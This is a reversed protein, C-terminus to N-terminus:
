EEPKTRVERYIVFAWLIFGILIVLLWVNSMSFEYAGQRNFILISAEPAIQPKSLLRYDLMSGIQNGVFMIAGFLILTTALMMLTKQRM